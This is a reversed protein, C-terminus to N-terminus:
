YKCEISHIKCTFTLYYLIRQLHRTKSILYLYYNGKFSALDLPTKGTDDKINANSFLPLLLRLIDGHGHYAKLVCTMGCKYNCSDSGQEDLLEPKMRKIFHVVSHDLNYSMISYQLFKNSFNLICSFSM